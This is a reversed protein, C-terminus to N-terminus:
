KAAVPVAEKVEEKVIPAVEKVPAAKAAKKELKTQKSAELVSKRLESVCKAMDMLYRRVVPASSNRGRNFSDLESEVLTLCERLQDSKTEIAM